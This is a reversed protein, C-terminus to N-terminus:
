GEPGEPGEEVVLLGGPGELGEEVLPLPWDVVLLGEVVDQLVVVPGAIHVEVTTTGLV